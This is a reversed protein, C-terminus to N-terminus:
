SLETVRESALRIVEQYEPLLRFPVHRSEREVGNRDTYVRVVSVSIDRTKAHQNIHALFEGHYITDLNKYNNQSM